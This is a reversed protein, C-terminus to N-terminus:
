PRVSLEGAWGTIPDGISFRQGFDGSAEVWGFGGMLQYTYKVGKMM